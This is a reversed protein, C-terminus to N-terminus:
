PAIPLETRPDIRWHNTRLLRGTFTVDQEDILTFGFARCIGNSPANTVGPLEHVAGQRASDDPGM